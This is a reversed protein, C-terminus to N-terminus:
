SSFIHLTAFTHVQLVASVKCDAVALAIGLAEGHNSGM